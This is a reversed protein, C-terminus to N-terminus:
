NGQSEPRRAYVNVLPTQELGSERDVVLESLGKSRLLNECHTLRGDVDMVECVVQQIRPWFRDEIGELVAIEAGECDIKLLDVRPIDHTDFVGSLSRIECRYTQAGGKLYKSIPGALFSPVMRAYWMYKGAEALHGKVAEKFADPNADWLDMHASSLAPCRPFYVIDFHDEGAGVGYPHVTIRDEGLQTANHELVEYIPPVPEFAHIHINPKMRALVVSFVGINAGVDFVVADDPLTIGHDLYGMAHEVLVRAESRVICQIPTGDPLRTHAM